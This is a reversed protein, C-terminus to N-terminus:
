QMAKARRRLYSWQLAIFSVVMAISTMVRLPVLSILMKQTSPQPGAALPSRDSSDTDDSETGNSVTGNSKAGNAAVTDSVGHPTNDSLTAGPPRDLTRTGYRYVRELHEQRNQYKTQMLMLAAFAGTSFLYVWFWPSDTLRPLAPRETTTTPASM